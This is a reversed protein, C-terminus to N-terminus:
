HQIRYKMSLRGPLCYWFSCCSVSNCICQLFSPTDDSRLGTACGSIAPSPISNLQPWEFSIYLALGRVSFRFLDCNWSKTFCTNLLSTNVNSTQRDFARLALCYISAYIVNFASDSLWCILASCGWVSHLGGCASILCSTFTVCESISCHTPKNLLRRVCLFAISKSRSYKFFDMKNFFTISPIVVKGFFSFSEYFLHVDSVSNM